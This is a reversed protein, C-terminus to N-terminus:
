ALHAYEPLTLIRRLHGFSQQCPVLEVYRERCHEDLTMVDEATLAGWGAGILPHSRYAFTHEIYLQLMNLKYSALRDVLDLLTQLSPVRGRSVDLLLGRWPLTPTDEIRLAPLAIVGRTPDPDAAGRAPDADHAGSARQRPQAPSQGGGTPDSRTGGAGTARQHAQALLQCLTQVGRALGAPAAAWLTVRLAEVVLTYAEAAGALPSDLNGGAPKEQPSTAGVAAMAPPNGLPPATGGHAPDAPANTGPGVSATAPAAGFAPEDRDRVALLISGDLAEARAQPVISARVGCARLARQLQRAAVREGREALHSTAIAIAQAVVFPPSSAPAVDIMRPQPILWPDDM